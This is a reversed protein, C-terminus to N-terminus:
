ELHLNQNEIWRVINVPFAILKARSKEVMFHYTLYCFIAIIVGIFVDATYHIRTFCISLLACLYVLSIIVTKTKCLWGVDMTEYLLFLVMCTAAAAHGSFMYDARPYFQTIPAALHLFGSWFVSKTEFFTQRSALDACIDREYSPLVTTTLCIARLYCCTGWVAFLRSVILRRRGSLNKNTFLQLLLLIPLSSIFADAVATPLIKKEVLYAYFPRSIGNLVDPLLSPGHKRGICYYYFYIQDTVDGSVAM